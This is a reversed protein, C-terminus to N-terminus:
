IISKIIRTPIFFISMMPLNWINTSISKTVRWKFYQQSLLHQLNGKNYKLIHKTDMTEAPREILSTTPKTLLM